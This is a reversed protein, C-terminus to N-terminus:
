RRLGGALLPAREVPHSRNVAQPLRDGLHVPRSVGLRHRHSTRRRMSRTVASEVLLGGLVTRLDLLGNGEHAAGAGHVEAHAAEASGHGDDSGWPRM